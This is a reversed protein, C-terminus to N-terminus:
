RRPPIVGVQQLMALRDAVGWHEAIKGGEYRCIDIIEIRITKGTPQIGLGNGLHTGLAVLRAYTKCDIAALEQFELHLDPFASRLSTIQLKLGQLDPPNFDRQHEQFNPTFLGDLATLNGRNFVEEIMTRFTQSNRDDAM